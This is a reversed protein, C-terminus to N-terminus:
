GSNQKFRIMEITREIALELGITLTLGLNSKAKDISPIYRDVVDTSIAHSSVDIGFQRAVMHAAEVITVAKDSGVNYIPCSTRAGECIAMLWCVLDDSHMYSRYVLHRAKINIHRGSLGDEIFNGIAFHQDRPLWPGLFAFCRAIAVRLNKQGLEQVVRESNRKARAYERKNEVLQELSDFAQTERLYDLSAPQHGYVAGSSVYLIKSHAHVSPALACYNHTGLEINQTEIEAQNVYVRADTSAAAHIVYDAQPLSQVTSIDASLLRVREGVLEPAERLLSRPNRSVVIIEGIGWQDLLGRRFCDLFSKGFFGTGGILLLKNM